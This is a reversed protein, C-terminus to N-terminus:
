PSNGRAARKRVRPYRKKAVFRRGQRRGQGGLRKPPAFARLDLKAYHTATARIAQALSLRDGAAPVPPTRYREWPNISTTLRDADAYAMWSALQVVVTYNDLHQVDSPQFTDLLLRQKAVRFYAESDSRAVYGGVVQRTAIQRRRKGSVALYMERKYIPQDTDPDLHQIRVVDIPQDKMSVGDKSRLLRDYWRQTLVIVPRQGQGMTREYRLTEDAVVTSISTREVPYTTQKGAYRRRKVDDRLINYHCEGYYARQYSGDAPPPLSAYTKTGYKLRCINILRPQSRALRGLFAVSAYGSDASNVVTLAEQRLPPRSLLWALQEAAAETATQAVGVRDVRLPLAWKGDFNSLNLFSLNYGVSLEYRQLQTRNPVHIAQRDALTPSFLATRPTTDVSTYIVPALADLGLTPQALPWCLSFVKAKLKDLGTADKALEDITDFVSAYQHQFCPNLSLQVVRNATTNSALSM